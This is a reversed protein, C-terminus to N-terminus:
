WSSFTGDLNLASYYVTGHKTGANDYGGLVILRNDYYVMSHRNRAQPLASGATFASIEGDIGSVKAYYVNNIATNESYSNTGGTVYIFGNALVASHGWLPQPLTVSSETWEGLTGDSNIKCYYVKDSIYADKRGGLIYMYENGAVMAHNGLSDPMAAYATWSSNGSGNMAARYVADSYGTGNNGGSLYVYNKWRAVQHGSLTQPLDTSSLWNNVATAKTALYVNNGTVVVDNQLGLNFDADTTQTFVVQASIRYSSILIFASLILLKGLLEINGKKILSKFYFNEM